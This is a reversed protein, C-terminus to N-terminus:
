VPVRSALPRLASGNRGDNAQLDRANVRHSYVQM